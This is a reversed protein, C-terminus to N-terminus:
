YRGDEGEEHGDDGEGDDKGDRGYEFDCLAEWAEMAADVDKAHVADMFAEMAERAGDKADGGDHEREGGDHGDHPMGILAVSLSPKGRPSM